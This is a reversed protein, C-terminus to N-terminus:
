IRIGATFGLWGLFQTGGRQENWWTYPAVNTGLEGTIPNIRESWMTNLVPGAYFSLRRGPQWDVTLRLQVLLNLQRTWAQQENVQMGILETNLLWERGLRDARGLGYGLAWSTFNGSLDNSTSADWRVGLHFINYLRYAGFKGSQNAFLVESTGLEM